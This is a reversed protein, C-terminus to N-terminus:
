ADFRVAARGSERPIATSRGSGDLVRRPLLNRLPFCSSFYPTKLKRIALVALFGALHALNRPMKQQEDSAYLVHVKSRM